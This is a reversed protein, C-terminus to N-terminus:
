LVTKHKSIGRGSSRYSLHFLSLYSKFMVTFRFWLEWLRTSAHSNHLLTNGALTCTDPSVSEHVPNLIYPQFFGESFSYFQYSSTSTGTLLEKNLEARGVSLIYQFPFILCTSELCFLALGCRQESSLICISTPRYIVCLHPKYHFLKM